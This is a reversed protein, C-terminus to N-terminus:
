RRALSAIGNRQLTQLNLGLRFGLIRRQPSRLSDDKMVISPRPVLTREALDLDSPHEGFQARLPKDPVRNRDPRSSLVDVMQNDTGPTDERDVGLMVGAGLDPNDVVHEPDAVALGAM